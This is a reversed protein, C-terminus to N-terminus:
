PTGRTPCNPNVMTMCIIEDVVVLRESEIEFFDSNNDEVVVLGQGEYHIDVVTGRFEFLYIDSGNPEPVDVSDGIHIIRGNKDKM